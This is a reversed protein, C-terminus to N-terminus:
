EISTSFSQKIGNFLLESVNLIFFLLEPNNDPLSTNDWGEWRLLSNLLLVQSPSRAANRIQGTCSIIRRYMGEM